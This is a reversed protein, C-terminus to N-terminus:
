KTYTYIAKGQTRFDAINSINKGRLNVNTELLIQVPGEDGTPANVLIVQPDVQLITAEKNGFLVRTVHRFNTGHLTVVAAKSGLGEPKGTTTNVVRAISPAEPLGIDFIRTVNNVNTVTLPV